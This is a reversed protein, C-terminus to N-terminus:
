TLEFFTMRIELGAVKADNGRRDIVLLFGGKRLLCKGM